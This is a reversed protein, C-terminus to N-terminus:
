RRRQLVLLWAIVDQKENEFLRFTTMPFHDEHLFREFYRRDRGKRTVINEFPPAMKADPKDTPRQHCMRCWRDVVRSGRAGAADPEDAQAPTLVSLM